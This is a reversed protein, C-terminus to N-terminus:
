PTVILDLEGGLLGAVRLGEEEIAQRPLRGAGGWTVVLDRGKRAWTGSVVGGVVVPNAKRTMAQRLPPPTVHGDKTGVGMVWQDHGPLFRVVGSPRAAALADADERVVYASSGAVDVAVLRDGLGAVWGDLRKRSVSLAEGLWYHLNAVPVPGYTRAYAMVARPGADDLEPVGAWRPNADLRQFTRQGDRRPGLSMDGQWTLPKVLTGAGDDFVPKLHRYRRDRALAEGIEVATL